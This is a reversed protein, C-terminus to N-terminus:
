VSKISNVAKRKTDPCLHAYRKTMELTSHGMLEAIVYIATGNMAHRSAFTHRLTHFVVKQRNDDVGSNLELRTVAKDFTKSASRSTFPKGYKNTFIFQDNNKNILERFFKKCDDAFYAMRTGAKADRVHIIGNTVDIDTVRLNLIEGLRLGTNLSVKAIDHWTPSLRQLTTLLNEIEETGLFRVRANDMKTKKVFPVPSKGDYLNWAIMRNYIRGFLSIVHNVTAPSLCRRGQNSTYTNKGKSVVQKQLLKQKFSELELTTIENLPTDAFAPYIHYDYRAIDDEPHKITPLHKEKYIAWAANVTICKPKEYFPLEDVKGLRIDKLRQARTGNAFQATFGDSQWGIREWKKKSGVNYLIYFCGDEKGNNYFRRKESGYELYVGPYRTKVRSKGSSVEEKVM